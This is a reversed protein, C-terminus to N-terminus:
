KAEDLSADSLQQATQATQHAILVYKAVEPENHLLKYINRSVLYKYIAARDRVDTVKRKKLVFNNDFTLGSHSTIPVLSRPVWDDIVYVGDKFVIEVRTWATAYTMDLRHEVTLQQQAPTIVQSHTAYTRGEKIEESAQTVQLPADTLWAFLHYWHIESVMFWGGSKERDWYWLPELLGETAHNYVHMSQIPGQTEQLGKIAQYFPHNTLVFEVGLYRKQAKAEFYLETVEKVTLALPKECLVDLGAAFAKKVLDYHTFNPTAIIAHTASLASFDATRGAVDTISSEHLIEELISRIFSGYGGSGVIAIHQTM